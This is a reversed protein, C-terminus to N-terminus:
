KKTLIKKLKELIRYLKVKANNETINLIEGIEKFPRKEFFRMEVLQLDEEDLEAVAVALRQGYKELNTEEQMDQMMDGLQVDDINVSRLHQKKRLLDYVESKAIRYLWSSFPVGKYEFKHLNTMAKLFVQQVVDFATDKDDIRQYIYRFIQEHYRNYILEFHAKDSKAAEIVALEEAQRENSVHYKSVVEM